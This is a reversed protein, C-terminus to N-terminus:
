RLQEMDVGDVVYTITKAGVSISMKSPLQGLEEAVAKLINHKIRILEPDESEALKEADEQYVALRERKSAIWMGAFEDELNQRVEVIETTHRDRFQSVAGHTVGYAEALETVTREGRALEHILRRRNWPRELPYVRRKTPANATGNAIALETM